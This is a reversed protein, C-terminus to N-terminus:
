KGENCANACAVAVAHGLASQNQLAADIEQASWNYYVDSDIAEMKQSVCDFNPATCTDYGWVYGEPCTVGDAAAITSFGFVLIIALVSKM